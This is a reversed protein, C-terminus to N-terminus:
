KCRSYSVVDRESAWVLKGNALTIKGNANWSEGGESCTARVQWGRSEAHINHFVCVSGASSKARRSNISLRLTKKEAPRCWNGLFSQDVRVARPSNLRERTTSDLVDDNALRNVLKFDQVAAKCAADCTGKGASSLFGLEQLRSRIQRSEEDNSSASPPLIAPENELAPERSNIEVSAFKGTVIRQESAARFSETRIPRSFAAEESGASTPSLELARADARRATELGRAKLAEAFVKDDHLPAAVSEGRPTDLPQAPEPALLSAQASQKRGKNAASAADAQALARPGSLSEIARSLFFGCVMVIL